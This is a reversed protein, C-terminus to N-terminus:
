IDKRPLDGGGCGTDIKRGRGNGGDAVVVGDTSYLGNGRGANVVIVVDCAVAGGCGTELV